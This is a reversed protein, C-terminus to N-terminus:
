LCEAPQGAEQQQTHRCFALAAQVLKMLPQSTSLTFSTLLLLLRLLVAVCGGEVASCSM